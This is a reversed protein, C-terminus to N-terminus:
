SNGGKVGLRSFIRQFVPEHMDWETADAAVTIVVLRDNAGDNGIFVLDQAQVVVPLDSAGLERSPDAVYAYTFLIAPVGDPGVVSETSLNRYRDLERSRRLPWSASIMELDEGERLDRGYVSVRADFSSPSAPDVAQFLLGEVQQPLWDAPYSLVPLQGGLAMERTASVTVEKLLWGLVLAILIVLAVLLSNRREDRPDPRAGTKSRAWQQKLNEFTQEAM